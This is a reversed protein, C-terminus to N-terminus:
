SQVRLTRPYTKKRFNQFPDVRLDGFLKHMSMLLPSRDTLKYSEFRSPRKQSSVQVDVKKPMNFSLKDFKPGIDYNM